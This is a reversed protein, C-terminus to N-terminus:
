NSQLSQRPPAGSVGKSLQWSACYLLLMLLHCICLVCILHVQLEQAFAKAAARIASRLMCAALQLQQTLKDVAVAIEDPSQVTCPLPSSRQLCM